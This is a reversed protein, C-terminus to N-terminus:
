RYQGLAPGFETVAVPPSSRGDTLTTRHHAFGLATALDDYVNRLYVTDGHPASSM